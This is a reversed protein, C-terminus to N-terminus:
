CQGGFIKGQKKLTMREFKSGKEPNKVVEQKKQQFFGVTVLLLSGLDKDYNARKRSLPHFTGSIFIRLQFCGDLHQFSGGM